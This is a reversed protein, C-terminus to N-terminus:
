KGLILMGFGGIEHLCIPAQEAQSSAKYPSHLTPASM